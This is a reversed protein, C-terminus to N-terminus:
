ASARFFRRMRSGRHPEFRVGKGRKGDGINVYVVAQFIRRERAQTSRLEDDTDLREIDVMADLMSLLVRKARIPVGKERHLDPWRYIWGHRPKPQTKM